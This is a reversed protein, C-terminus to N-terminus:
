DLRPKRLALRDDVVNTISVALCCDITEPRGLLISVPRFLNAFIYLKEFGAPVIVDNGLEDPEVHVERLELRCGGVSVPAM